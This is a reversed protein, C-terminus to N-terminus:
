QATPQPQASQVLYQDLLQKTAALDIAPVGISEQKLANLQELMDKTVPSNQDFYKQVWESMRVLGAYYVSSDHNMLSLMVVDLQAHLNQYLFMKEEPMILPEETAGSYRVIVIKRLADMTKHWQMKWWPLGNYNKPKENANQTYQLPTPPLPLQDLQAGMASLRAYVQDINVHPANQLTNVDEALKARLSDLAPNQISQLIEQAHKLNVFAAASDGLLSLQYGAVNILAQAEAVNYKSLDPQAANATADTQSSQAAHDSLAQKLQLLQQEYTVQQQRLDSVMNALSVNVKSLEFYGYGFGGVCATLALMTMIMGTKGANSATNSRTVPILEDNNQNTM